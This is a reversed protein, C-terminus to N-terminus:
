VGGMEGVRGRRDRSVVLRNVADIVQKKTKYKM